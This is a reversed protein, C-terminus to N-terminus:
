EKLNGMMMLLFQERDPRGNSWRWVRGLLGFEYSAWVDPPLTAETDLADVEEKNLEGAAVLLDVHRVKLAGAIRRRVDASPFAIKGNEIQAMHSRGLGIADALAAQSMGLEGRRIKIFPGLGGADSMCGVIFAKDPTSLLHM